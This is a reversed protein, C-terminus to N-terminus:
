LFLMIGCAAVSAMVAVHGQQPGSNPCSQLAIAHRLPCRGYLILRSDYPWAQSACFHHDLQSAAGDCQETIESTAPVYVHEIQHFVAEM